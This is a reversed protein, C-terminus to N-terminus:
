VLTRGASLPVETRDQESLYLLLVSLQLAGILEKLCPDKRSIFTIRNQGMLTCPQQFKMSYVYRYLDPLALIYRQGYNYLFWVGFCPSPAFCLSSFHMAPAQSPASCPSSFTCLLPKLLHLAPVQSPASCPSSFTCLLPKLLHLAPAQSPASYPKSFTFLLPKLLHLAPALSPASCTSVWNACTSYLYSCKGDVGTKNM